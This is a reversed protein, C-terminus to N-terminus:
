VHGADPDDQGAAVGAPSEDAASEHVSRDEAIITDTEDAVPNSRYRSVGAIRGLGGRRCDPDLELRQWGYEVNV